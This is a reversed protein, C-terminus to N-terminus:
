EQKDKDSLGEVERDTRSAMRSGRRARGDKLCERWVRAPVWGDLEAQIKAIPNNEEWWDPIQQQTQQQLNDFLQGLEDVLSSLRTARAQNLADVDLKEQSAKLGSLLYENLTFRLFRGNSGRRRFVFAPTRGTSSHNRDEPRKTSEDSM